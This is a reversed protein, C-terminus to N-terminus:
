LRQEYGMTEIVREVGRGDCVAAARSSISHYRELDMDIFAELTEIDLSEPAMAAFVAGTKALHAAAPKQNDAIVVVLSPLGLVCREWSTVGGGGIALDAGALLSAMEDVASVVRLPVPLRRAYFGAKEADSLARGRLLTISGLREVRSKELLDLLQVLVADVAGGGLFILLDRSSETDKRRALVSERIRAFDPRLLAYDPGVMIRCDDPVLPRYDASLRGLNQDLLLDTAHRRDALDDIAMLRRAHSRLRAEWRAELAYHDVVILDLPQVQRAIAATEEADEQWDTGLWGAHAPVPPEYGADARGGAPAPLLQCAFGHQRLVATREGVHDRCVFLVEAGKARLSKALTLCRMLHGTGIHDAADVRFLVHMGPRSLM